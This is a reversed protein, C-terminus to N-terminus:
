AFPLFFFFRNKLNKKKVIKPLKGSYRYRHAAYRYRLRPARENNNNNNNNDDNNNVM